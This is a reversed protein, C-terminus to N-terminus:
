VVSKRDEEDPTATNQEQHEHEHQHHHTKELAMWAMDAVEIITKAVEVAGHARM